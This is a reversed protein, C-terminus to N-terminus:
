LKDLTSCSHKRAIVDKNQLFIKLIHVKRVMFRHKVCIFEILLNLEIADKHLKTLNWFDVFYTFYRL